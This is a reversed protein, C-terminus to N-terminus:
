DSTGFYEMMDNNDNNEGAAHPLQACDYIKRKIILLLECEGMSFDPSPLLYM